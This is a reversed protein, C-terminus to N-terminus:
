AVTSVAWRNVYARHEGARPTKGLTLHMIGTNKLSATNPPTSQFGVKSIDLM